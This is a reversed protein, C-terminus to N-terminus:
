RGQESTGEVALSEEFDHRLREADDEELRVRLAPGLRGKRVAREFCESATCVYAGRGNARGSRDVFVDGDKTRVIRLLDRKDAGAGCGICM